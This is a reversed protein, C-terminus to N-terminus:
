VYSGIRVSIIKAIEDISEEIDKILAASKPCTLGKRM